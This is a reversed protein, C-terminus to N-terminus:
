KSYPILKNITSKGIGDIKLLDDLNVNKLDELLVYGNDKLISSVKPPLVNRILLGFYDELFLKGNGTVREYYKSFERDTKILDKILNIKENVEKESESITHFKLLFNFYLEQEEVSLYGLDSSCTGKPIEEMDIGLEKYTKTIPLWIGEWGEKAYKPLKKNKDFIKEKHHKLVNLPTRLQLTANFEFCKIMDDDIMNNLSQEWPTEDSVNTNKILFSEVNELFENHTLYPLVSTEIFKKSLDRFEQIDINENNMCIKIKNIFKYQAMEIISNESTVFDIIHNTPNMKLPYFCLLYYLGYSYHIIAQKFKKEKQLLLGQQYVVNLFLKHNKFFSELYLKQLISWIIDNPLAKGLNKELEIKANNERLDYDDVIKRLTNDNEIIKIPIFIKNPNSINNPKNINSSEQKDKKILFIIFVALIVFLIWYSEM